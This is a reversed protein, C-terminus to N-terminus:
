FFFFCTPTTPKKEKKQSHRTCKKKKNESSHVLIMPKHVKDNRILYILSPKRNSHLLLFSFWNTVCLKKLVLNHICHEYVCELYFQIPKELPYQMSTSISTSVIWQSTNRYMTAWQLQKYHARENFKMEHRHDILRLTLAFNTRYISNQEM